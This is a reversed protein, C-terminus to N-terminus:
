SVGVLLQQLEDDFAVVDFCRKSPHLLVLAAGANIPHRHVLQRRVHGLAPRLKAIIEERASVLRLRHSPV